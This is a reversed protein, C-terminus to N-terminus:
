PITVKFATQSIWNNAPENAGIEWEGNSRLYQLEATVNYQGGPQLPNYLQEYAWDHWNTPTNASVPITPPVPIPGVKPWYNFDTGGFKIRFTENALDSRRKWVGEVRINQPEAGPANFTQIPDRRPSVIYVLKGPIEGGHADRMFMVMGMMAGTTSLSGSYSVTFTGDWGSLLHESQVWLPVGVNAESMVQGDESSTISASVNDDGCSFSGSGSGGQPPDMYTPVLDFQVTGGVSYVTDIPLDDFEESTPEWSYRWTETYTYSVGADGGIQAEFDPTSLPTTESYDGYSVSLTGSGSEPYAAYYGARAPGAAVLLIFVSWVINCWRFSLVPKLLNAGHNM